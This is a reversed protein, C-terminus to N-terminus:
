GNIDYYVSAYNTSRVTPPSEEGDAGNETACPCVCPLESEKKKSEIKFPKAEIRRYMDEEEPISWRLSEVTDIPGSQTM